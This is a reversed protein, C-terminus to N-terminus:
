NDECKFYEFYSNRYVSTTLHTYMYTMYMYKAIHIHIYTCRDKGNSNQISRCIAVISQSNFLNEVSPVIASCVGSCLVSLQIDSLIRTKCNQVIIIVTRPFCLSTRFCHVM